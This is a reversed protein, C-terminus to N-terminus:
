RGIWASVALIIWGLMMLVGGIPAIPFPARAGTAGLMYLTGSFLIMGVTLCIGAALAGNAPLHEAALGVLIISLAHWMHYKNATNFTALADEGGKIAHAGIAGLMVALFGNLAGIIIWTKAM